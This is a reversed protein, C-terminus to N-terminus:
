SLVTEAACENIRWDPPIQYVWWPAWPEVGDGSAARPLLSGRPAASSDALQLSRTGSVSETALLNGWQVENADPVDILM